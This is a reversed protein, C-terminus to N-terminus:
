RVTVRGEEGPDEGMTQFIFTEYATGVEAAARACEIHAEIIALLPELRRKTRLRDREREMALVWKMVM